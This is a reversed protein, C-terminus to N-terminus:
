PSLQKRCLVCHQLHRPFDSSFTQDPQYALSNGINGGQLYGSTNGGGNFITLNNNTNFYIGNPPSFPNDHSYITGPVYSEFNESYTSALTIKQTLIIGLIIFLFYWWSKVKNFILWSRIFIKM